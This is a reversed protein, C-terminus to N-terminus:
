RLAGVVIVVAFGKGRKKRFFLKFVVNVREGSM